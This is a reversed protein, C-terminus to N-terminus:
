KKHVVLTNGIKDHWAQKRADFAIWLYGIFLALTSIFYGLYRLICHKLSLKDGTDADVIKLGLMMKGPTASAYYWFAIVVVIPLIYNLLIGIPSSDLAELGELNVTGTMAIVAFAIPIMLILLLVTDIITAVLRIWFGAYRYNQNSNDLAGHENM